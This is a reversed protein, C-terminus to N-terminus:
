RVDFMGLGNAYITVRAQDRVLEIQFPADVPDRGFEVQDQGDTRQLAVQTNENWRRERLDQDDLMPVWRRESLVLFRYGANDAQLRIALGRVQAEESALALLQAMREAEFRLGRQSNPLGNIALMSIAVAAILIAVLLEILTFGRTPPRM